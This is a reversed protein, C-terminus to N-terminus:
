LFQRVITLKAFIPKTVKAPEQIAYIVTCVYKDMHRLRNQNFETRSIEM